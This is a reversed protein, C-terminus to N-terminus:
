RPATPDVDGAEEGFRVFIRHTAPGRGDSLRQGDSDTALFTVYLGYTGFELGRVSSPELGLSHCIAWAVPRPISEPVDPVSM